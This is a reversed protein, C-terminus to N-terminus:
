AGIRALIEEAPAPPEMGFHTRMTEALSAADAIDREVAVEGDRAETVLRRNVIKWRRDGVIHEMTLNKTFPALPSTSTFWNGLMYDSPLQAELTFVYMSRWGQPQKARLEYIGESELLLFTGMTTRQEVGTAFRLPADILCAGFGVDALHPGEPADVKLLMHTRPGLPAGPPSMWRVRGALGVVNFGVRELIAKFLLNQEFCYGGRRGAVLKDHIVPLDLSVPRGLLPDIAEFPIARVHADHLTALTALDPALPGEHGIRALYADLGIGDNM